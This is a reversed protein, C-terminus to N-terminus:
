VVRVNATRLELRNGFPDAVFLREVGDIKADDSVVV